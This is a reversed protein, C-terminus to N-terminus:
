RALCIEQDQESARRESYRDIESKRKDFHRQEDGGARGVRSMSGAADPLEDDLKM